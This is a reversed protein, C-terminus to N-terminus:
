KQNYFAKWCKSCEMLDPTCWGIMVLMISSLSLRVYKLYRCYCLLLFKSQMCGMEKINYLTIRVVILIGGLTKLLFGADWVVFLV